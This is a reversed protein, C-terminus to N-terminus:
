VWRGGAAEFRERAAAMDFKGEVLAEAEWESRETAFFDGGYVHLAGTLRDLPNLVSHIIDHGLTDVEGARLSRAGAAELQRPGPVRRWFINDEGGGYVGIVAWMRHNHPMVSMRAGWVLNLVTLQPSRYLVDIGAKEPVGLGRVVAAPDSIARAVLERAHKQEGGGEIASRCEAVFEEREFM